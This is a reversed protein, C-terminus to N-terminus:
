NVRVIWYTIFFGLERDNAPASTPFVEFVEEFVTEIGLYWPDDVDPNNGLGYPIRQRLDRMHGFGDLDMATGDTDVDPSPMKVVATDDDQIIWGKPVNAATGCWEKPGTYIPDDSCGDGEIWYKADSEIYSVINTGRINITDPVGRWWAKIFQDATTSSLAPATESSVGDSDSRWLYVYSRSGDAPIIHAPADTTTETRVAPATAVGWMLGRGETFHYRGRKHIIIHDEVAPLSGNLSLVNQVEVNASAADQLDGLTAGHFSGGDPDGSLSQRIVTVTDNERDVDSVKGIFPLEDNLFYRRGDRGTVLLVPEGPTVLYRAQDHRLPFPLVSTVQIHPMSASSAVAGVVPENNTDYSVAGREVNVGQTYGTAGERGDYHTGLVKGVFGDGPGVITEAQIQKPKASPQLSQPQQRQVDPRDNVVPVQPPMDVPENTEVTLPQDIAPDPLDNQPLPLDRVPQEFMGGTHIELFNDNDDPM